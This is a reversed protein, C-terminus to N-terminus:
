KVPFLLSKVPQLSGAYLGPAQAEIVNGTHPCTVMLYDCVECETQIRDSYCWRDALAGCNACHVVQKTATTVSKQKTTM